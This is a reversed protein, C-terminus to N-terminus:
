AWEMFNGTKKDFMVMPGGSMMYAVISRNKNPYIRLFQKESDFKCTMRVIRKFGWSELLGVFLQEETNRFINRKPDGLGLAKFLRCMASKKVGETGLSKKTNPTFSSKKAM